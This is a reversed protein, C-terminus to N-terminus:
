FKNTINTIDTLSGTFYIKKSLYQSKKNHTFVVTFLNTKVETNEGWKSVTCKVSDIFSQIEKEIETNKNDASSIIQEHLENKADCYNLWDIIKKDTFVGIYNPEILGSEKFVKERQYYDINQIKHYYSYDLSFYYKNKDKVLRVLNGKPTLFLLRSHEIYYLEVQTPESNKYQKRCEWFLGHTYKNLLESPLTYDNNVRDSYDYTNEGLKQKSLYEKPMDSFQFLSLKSTLEKLATQQTTTNM